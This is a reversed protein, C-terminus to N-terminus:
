YGNNYLIHDLKDLVKEYEDKDVFISVFSKLELEMNYWKFTMLDINSFYKILWEVLMYVDGCEDFTFTPFGNKFKSKIEMSFRQQDLVKLRNECEEYTDPTIQVSRVRHRWLRWMMIGMFSIGSDQIQTYDTELLLKKKLSITEVMERRKYEDTKTTKINHIKTIKM